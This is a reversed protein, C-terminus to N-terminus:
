NIINSIAEIRKKEKKYIVTTSKQESEFTM